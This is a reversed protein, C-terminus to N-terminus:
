ELYKRFKEPTKPLTNSINNIAMGDKEVEFEGLPTQYETDEKSYQRCIIKSYNKSLTEYQDNLTFPSSVELEQIIDENGNDSIGYMVLTKAKDVFHLQRWITRERKYLYEVLEREEDTLISTQLLNYYFSKRNAHDGEPMRNVLKIIEITTLIKAKYKERESADTVFRLAYDTYQKQTETDEVFNRYLKKNKIYFYKNQPDISIQPCDNSYNFVGCPDDYYFDDEIHKVTSPFHIASVGCYNFAYSGVYELGEPLIIRNASKIANEDELSKLSKPLRTNGFYKCCQYPLVEVKDPIVLEDVGIFLFASEGLKVISQPLNLKELNECHAFGYDGIERLSKPLNIEKVEYACFACNGITKVGNPVSIQEADNTHVLITGDESFIDNGNKKFFQAYKSNYFIKTLVPIKSCYDECYLRIYVEIDNVYGTKNTVNCCSIDINKIASNLFAEDCDEIDKVDIDGLFEITEEYPNDALWQKLTTNETEFIM